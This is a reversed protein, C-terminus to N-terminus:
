CNLGFLSTRGGKTSFQVASGRSRIELMVTSEPTKRSWVATIPCMITQFAGGKYWPIFFPPTPMIVLYRRTTTLILKMHQDHGTVLINDNGSYYIWKPDIRSPFVGFSMHSSPSLLRPVLFPSIWVRYGWFTQCQSSIDYPKLASIIPM